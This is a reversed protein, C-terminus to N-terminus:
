AALADKEGVVPHEIAEFAFFENNCRSRENGCRFSDSGCRTVDDGYSSRRRRLWEPRRPL